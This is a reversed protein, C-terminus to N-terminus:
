GAHEGYARMRARADTVDTELALHLPHAREAVSLDLGARRMRSFPVITYGRERGSM